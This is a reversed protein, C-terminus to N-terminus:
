VQDPQPGFLEEEHPVRCLAHGLTVCLAFGFTWLVLTTAGTLFCLLLSLSIVLAQKALLPVEWGCLVIPERRWSLLYVSLLGMALGVFLLSPHLLVAVTLAIFFVLIYNTQFHELNARLRSPVERVEQPPAMKSRDTFENWPRLNERREEKWEVFREKLAETYGGSQTQEPQGGGGMAVAVNGSSSSSSSTLSPVLSNLASAATAAFAMAEVAGVASGSSNNDSEVM